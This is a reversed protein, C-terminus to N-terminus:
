QPLPPRNSNPFSNGAQMLQERTYPERPGEFARIRSPIDAPADAKWEALEQAMMRVSQEITLGNGGMLHACRQAMELATKSM